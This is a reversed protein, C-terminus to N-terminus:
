IFPFSERTVLSRSSYVAKNNYCNIAPLAVPTMTTQM